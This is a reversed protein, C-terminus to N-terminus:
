SEEAWPRKEKFRNRRQEQFLNKREYGVSECIWSNCNKIERGRLFLLMTWVWLQEFGKFLELSSVCPSGHTLLVGPSHEAAAGLWGPHTRQPLTYHHEGLSSPDRALTFNFWLSGIVIPSCTDHCPREQRIVSRAFPCWANRQVRRAATCQIQDRWGSLWQHVCLTCVAAVM